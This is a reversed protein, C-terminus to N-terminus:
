GSPTSRCRPSRTGRADPVEDLRLAAPRARPRARELWVATNIEYITPRAPLRVVEHRRRSRSRRRPLAAMSWRPGGTARKSCTASCSCRRGRHRDLGDPPQRRHRRRQRRPLVRPVPAPRALAPRDPVDRHRRVRAPPRGRGRHVHTTLRDAIEDAVELLNMESARAPRASSRSATATTARLLQLLGRLIVMNMPFWVPGRWNSNGGFMGTDSEAPLYDVSTTAPRGLRARRTRRPPPALDRPDRAPRPVRGRRAHM